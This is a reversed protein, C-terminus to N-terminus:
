AAAERDFRAPGRLCRGYTWLKLYATSSSNMAWIKWPACPKHNANTKLADKLVQYKQLDSM